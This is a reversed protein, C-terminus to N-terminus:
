TMLRPIRRVRPGIADIADAALREWWPTRRRRVEDLLAIPVSAAVGYAVHTAFSTLIHGMGQRQIPRVLGTRPLWGAYGVAWSLAGMGAGVLVTRRWRYVHMGAVAAGLLGGWAIGYAWPLSRVIRVHVRRPLVHGYRAELKSLIFDAPDGSPEPPRMPEPMRRGLAMGQKILLTGLAGGLVGEATHIVLGDRM